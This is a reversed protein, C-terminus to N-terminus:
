DSEDSEGGDTVVMRIPLIIRKGKVKPHKLAKDVARGIAVSLNSGTGYETITTGAPAINPSMTVFVKRM